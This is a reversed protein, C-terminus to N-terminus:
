RQIGGRFQNEIDSKRKTTPISTPPTAPRINSDVSRLTTPSLLSADGISNDIGNFKKKSFGYKSGQTNGRNEIFKLGFSVTVQRPLVYEKLNLSESGVTYKQNGVIEGLEWGGDDEMTYSISEIFCIKNKYLNGLTFKLFPPVIYTSTSDYSIPYVLSTLFDIKQWMVMHEVPSLSFLKLNFSISREISTYNYYNFPSGLFQASDWSPTLTESLGDIVATFQVNQNGLLQSFKLPIFDYEDLYSGDRLKLRNGDNGVYPPKTNVFDFTNGIGRPKVGDNLKRIKLDSKSYIRNPKNGPLNQTIPTLGFNPVNNTNTNAFEKADRDNIQERLTRIEIDSGRQLTILNSSLDNRAIIDDSKALITKSYPSERDYQVSDPTKKALNQAAKLPSGFLKKRFGKKLEALIAGAIKIHMKPPGINVNKQLFKGVLNGAADGKIRKLVEMTNPELEARFEANYAIRSPILKQPLQLGLKSLVGEGLREGVDILKGIIGSRQFSELASTGGNAATKMYELTNTTKRTLRIIDRSYTVPFALIKLPRLGTAEAERVKEKKRFTLNPNERLTKQIIPFVTSNLLPINSSIRIDKSNRIKYVEEATKNDRNALKKTKFLDSLLAMINILILALGILLKQYKLHLM